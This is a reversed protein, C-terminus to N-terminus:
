NNKNLFEKGCVDKCWNIPDNSYLRHRFNKWKSSMYLDKINSNLLNGFNIYEPRDIVCCPTIYGNWTLWLGDIWECKDYTFNNNENFMLNIGCKNAKVKTYNVKKLYDKNNIIEYQELMEKDEIHFNKSYKLMHVNDIGVQSALDIIKDMEKYNQEMCVFNLNINQQILSPKDVDKIKEILNEINRILKDYKGNVRIKEYIEKTAGDISIQLYTVNKVMCNIMEEDMLLGNTIVQLKINKKRCYEMMQKVDKNLLPEGGNITLRTINDFQDLIKKFWEYKMCGKKSPYMTKSSIEGCRPCMVCKLNCLNTIEINRIVPIVNFNKNISRIVDKDLYADKIKDINECNVSLNVSSLFFWEKPAKFINKNIEKIEKIHPLINKIMLNENKLTYSNNIAKRSIIENPAIGLPFGRFELYDVSNQKAYSSSKNIINLDILLNCGNIRIIYESKYQNAIKKLSKAFGDENHLFTEINNNKIIDLNLLEKNGESYLVIIKFNKLSLLKSIISEIITSDNFRQFFIDDKVQKQITNQAQVVIIDM